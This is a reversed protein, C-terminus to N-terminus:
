RGGGWIGHDNIMVKGQPCCGGQLSLPCAYYGTHGQCTSVAATTAYCSSKACAYNEPCCDGGLSAPCLSYSTPCSDGGRKERLQVDDSLVRVDETIKVKFIRHINERRGSGHFMAEVGRLLVLSLLLITCPACSWINRGRMGPHM